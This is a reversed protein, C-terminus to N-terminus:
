PRSMGTNLAALRTLGYGLTRWSYCTTTYIRGSKATDSEPRIKPANAHRRMFHGTNQPHGETIITYESVFKEAAERFTPGSAKKPKAPAMTLHEIGTEQQGFKRFLLSTRDDQRHRKTDVYVAMYWEKAIEKAQPLSEEKTSVRHNRGNMYTSCQWYRSNHRKYVHVRGDMFSHTETHM